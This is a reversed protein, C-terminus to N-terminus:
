ASGRLLTRLHDLSVRSAAEVSDNVRCHTELSLSGEYGAARLGALLRDFPVLGRGLPVWAGNEDVDKLHVHAIREVAADLASESPPGGGRVHNGADWIVRLGPVRELADVTEAATAVNCDHENELLLEVPFKDARELAEKLVAIVVDSVAAPDEARWGSFVRLFPVGFRQALPLARDLLAWSDALTASARGGHLAAGAAAPAGPLACKFIPTALATVVFGRSEILAIADRLELETLDLWSRGGVMRLEVGRLGLREAGDLAHDLEPALEDIIIGLIM